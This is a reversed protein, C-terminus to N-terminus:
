GFYELAEKLNIEKKWHEKLKKLYVLSESKIHGWKKHIDKILEADHKEDNIYESEHLACMYYIIHRFLNYIADKEDADFLRCEYLQVLSESSPNLIEAFTDGLDQLKENMKKKVQRLFFDPFEISSLEFESDMEEFLPLKYKKRYTEYIEKVM